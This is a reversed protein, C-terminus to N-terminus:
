WQWNLTIPTRSHCRDTCALHQLAHWRRAFRCSPPVVDWPLRDLYRAVALKIDVLKRLNLKVQNTVTMWYARNERDRNENM